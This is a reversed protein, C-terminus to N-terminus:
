AQPKADPARIYLPTPALRRFREPLLAAGAATIRCPEAWLESRDDNPVDGAWAGIKRARRLAEAPAVAEIEGLAEMPDLAFPQVFLEGRFADLVTLVRPPADEEMQASMAIMASATFGFVPVNWALALARAASVGVRIGTFSGPGVCVSIEDVRSVGARSLLEAILPILREAHGRGINEDCGGVHRRGDELAISLNSGSTEIFM